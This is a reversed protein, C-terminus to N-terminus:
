KGEWYVIPRLAKELHSAGHGIVQADIPLATTRHSNRAKGETALEVILHDCRMRLADIWMSEEEPMHHLVSMALVLECREMRYVTDLTVKSLQVKIRDCGTRQVQYKAIRFAGHHSEYADVSCLPFDETLRIGFYCANAGIDMVRFQRDGFVGRCFDRVCEYRSACERYGFEATEGRAWRDQYSM